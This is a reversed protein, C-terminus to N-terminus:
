LLRKVKGIYKRLTVESIGCGDAVEKETLKFMSINRVSLYLISGIIPLGTIAFLDTFDREKIKLMVEKFINKIHLILESRHRIDGTEKFFHKNFSYIYDIVKEVFINPDQPHIKKYLKFTIICEVYINYIKGTDYGKRKFDFLTVPQRNLRIFLYLLAPVVDELSKGTFNIQDKYKRMYYYCDDVFMYGLNFEESLRKLENNIFMSSQVDWGFWGDKKLARKLNPNDTEEPNSWTMVAMDPIRHTRPAGHQLEEDEDEHYVVEDSMEQWEDDVLGCNPCIGNLFTAGCENCENM